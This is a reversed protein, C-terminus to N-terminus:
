DDLLFRGLYFLLLRYGRGLLLLLRLFFLYIGIFLKLLFLILFIEFGMFLVLGRRCAVFWFLGFFFLWLGLALWDVNRFGYGFIALADLTHGFLCLDVLSVRTLTDARL